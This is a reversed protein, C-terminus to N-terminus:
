IESIINIEKEKKLLKNGLNCPRNDSFKSMHEIIVRIQLIQDCIQPGIIAMQQGFNQKEVGNELKRYERDPAM